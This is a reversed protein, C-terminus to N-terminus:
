VKTRLHQLFSATGVDLISRNLGTKYAGGGATMGKISLTETAILGYITVLKATEQHHFDRRQVSTM